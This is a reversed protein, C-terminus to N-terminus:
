LENRHQLFFSEYPYQAKDKLKQDYSQYRKKIKYKKFFFEQNFLSYKGSKRQNVIRGSPEVYSGIGPVNVFQSMFKKHYKLWRAEFDADEYSIGLFREDFWGLENVEKKNLFVYCWSENIKFSHYQNENICSSLATWFSDEIFIDDNLLLLYNTQSHILCSNWLKALSRFETFFVPYVRDYDALFRLMKERYHQDFPERYNGNITVIIDGSFNQRIKQILPKFYSEFRHSYTTIGISFPEISIDQKSPKYSVANQPHKLNDMIIQDKNLDFYRRFKKRLKQSPILCSLTRIIVRRM